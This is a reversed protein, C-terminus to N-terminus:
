TLRARKQHARLLGLLVSGFALSGTVTPEPVVSVQATVSGANDAVSRSVADDNFWLWLGGAESSIFQGSSGINWYGFSQPFFSGDGWHGQYPDSGVYAILRGQNVGADLFRDWTTPGGVPQYGDPGFWGEGPGCTWSGSATISVTDGANLSMHTDTWLPNAPVFVTLAKANTIGFLSLIAVVRTVATLSRLQASSLHSHKMKM